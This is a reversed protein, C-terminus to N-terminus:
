RRSSSHLQKLSLPTLYNKLFRGTYSRKEVVVEEPTGQAVVEGGREGGEPGLDIIYDAMKILDLNHEVVVVTNGADVLDELVSVLKKIDDFHLGTTPEDLLYLCDHRAPQSLERCIKLRQAEGGSLATASQGLRLYGLGVRKLLELKKRLGPLSSFLNWAEDVTLELIHYINKGKYTVELVEPKYRKGGCQECIVFVDEFLYMELRQRGLGQCTECRGGPTNFSFSSATLGMSKAQSLTAFFKRIEDFAKMYTIPNSRPSKGIPQQDIMCIGKIFEVGELKDFPEGQGFESKLSRALAWYLTDNILTSKGSGSVGTICVLTHLPLKISINKLNNGRAGRLYLHRGSRKRRKVPCSLLEEGKIYRATLCDSQYFDRRNGAFVIHGGREGGGPGMEVIFHAHNIFSKDHEVVVVTNGRDALEMVASVLKQTDRCHLGISPEDLVYLTGMLQSGLQNALNIRQAEGASLTRTTRELTLYHLGVELLFQIKMKIQRLIDQSISYEFATLNLANFWDALKDITMQSIQYINLSNIRVNLAESKLRTGSCSTCIFQGRYRSLFVRIHLKYRKKELEAFFEDIGYFDAAGKFILNKQKQSLYKYPKKLDIKHKKAASRLQDYWWRYGPKNWPEIAGEASSLDKDPIILDEDYALTKGFGNCDPCAGLPNNFSFLNPYPKKFDINCFHCKFHSSITILRKEELLEISLREGGERFAMEISDNIRKRSDNKIMVRDVIVQVEKERKLHIEEDANLKILKGKLSIRTFGRALLENSINKERLGVVYPFRIFIEKGYYNKFLENVVDEPHYKKVRKGCTPCFVQGIRAFLLRLHDYIGTATGVTSRATKVPNKQEIAIAPRINIITEVSPRDLKEIFMRAYTSLSELYRWQGEAFLTDFALSSKGSGSIGTIVILRNHPLSLSINKLNNQKAGKIVIQDGKM